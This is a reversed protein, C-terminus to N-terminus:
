DFSEYLRDMCYQVVENPLSANKTIIELMAEYMDELATPSGTVLEYFSAGDIDYVPRRSHKIRKIQRQSTKPVITVIYGKWGKGKQQVAIDIDSEVKSRTSANMTNHKNKVEALIQHKESVLDYGADHNEWDQVSGLVDQHFKGVAASISSQVSASEQMSQIEAANNPKYAFAIVLSAFPDPRNLILKKAAKARAAKAKRLLVDIHERLVVDSIWSLTNM